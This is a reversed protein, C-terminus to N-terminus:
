GATSRSARARPSSGTMACRSHRRPRASGSAAARNRRGRDIMQMRRRLEGPQRFRDRADRAREGIALADGDVAVVVDVADRRRDDQAPRELQEAAVDAVEDGLPQAVAVPQLRGGDVPQVGVADFNHMETSQPM